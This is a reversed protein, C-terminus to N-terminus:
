TLERTAPLREGARLRGEVIADRLQRYADAQLHEGLSLHLDVLAIRIAGGNKALIARQHTWEPPVGVSMFLSWTMAAVASRGQAGTRGPKEIFTRWPRASSSVRASRRRRSGPVTMGRWRWSPSTCANLRDPWRSSM